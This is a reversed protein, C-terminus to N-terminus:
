PLSYAFPSDESPLEFPPSTASVYLLPEEGVNRISHSAGSPVLVMTGSRVEREEHGVRMVGRGRVIVYVQESNAHQHVPQESGPECEVWTISLNRSGFQGETLLLYSTQGGRHNRPSESINRVFM